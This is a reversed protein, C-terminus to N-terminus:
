CLWDELEPSKEPELSREAFKMMLLARKVDLWNLLTDQDKDKRNDATVRDLLERRPGWLLSQLGRKAEAIHIREDPDPRLLLRALRELGSSYISVSPISPLEEIRYHRNRLSPVAEFPNPLHLMEYILIGTQFEDVKRYQSASVIEPAMRTLEARQKEDTECRRKAKSFNSILLRPLPEQHTPNSTIPQRQPVLIMNELCLDRHTVGHAKLHELANCLFDAVSQSPVDRTIVVVREQQDLPVTGAPSSPPVLTEEQGPLMSLPVCAIFHGCDQQLNFHPPISQQVSLGFLHSRRVEQTHGKCIKVAYPTHMDSSCSAPYYAADRTVCVARSCSLKFLSWEHENFFRHTHKQTHTFREECKLALRRVCEGYLGGLRAYVCERSAGSSLLTQLSASSSFSLQPSSCSTVAQSKLKTEIDSSTTRSLLKKEPLPPPCLSPSPFLSPCSHQTSEQVVSDALAPLSDSSTTNMEKMSHPLSEVSGRQDLEMSSVSLKVCSSRKPRGRQRRGPLKMDLMRRGIYESERRLMKLEAVELESEPRQRLRVVTRYVKGKIRASIKRDCLVGLVKRWGNWGAQVRKKVEKGCEGNSQVTSGLYKFDQVKKVEEGQLRVTGSGERENVCMYETKSRSVKMGRRELAFRWRELNEEVQERSESCIVIDDAFMMTWPSEQRVEESLQDMVIAFLMPSLASGQHLGVEVNFEETQGVACRVVTRSREYMDQVVRVYKEAVGSKRMCYWLEERPVRDYAKELNELVMNFLSTLFEVAAEGLCKWVEVPIDDPGVAKGSKMRKLAKRVEDKRIKDVKQEVSNVGEVRKERENEENMLEEFYEKWRRQVSEESTLVRGDRDKIVRVQQVDKGDRDRQRALRYLDKEEERTDLRTYLEDYAKQKAKSVERKVRRQLEKYEQRNEETRDMDWKKKALRKRQISDQVEENWWWTEKDEKRRGSSVGLVKRGTERIVEATTEWDDPLASGGSKYTVRHEERKQFYTNVVAMDMRKAFDVVMQGELNREKVGFKAMVEEDGTNGEGVHGNFDAGIVVREGTPISEMVEDLESWFREKEELECGVELVNRVFEEKLVVGVVNRKSDVGYYFLKFGAGISCAKSGKWRTEQVCLIDVKRREMMDALERGKGKRKERQRHVRRGGRSRRGVTAWNGSAGQLDVAGITTTTLGPRSRDPIFNLTRHHRKPPPLPPRPESSSSDSKMEAQKESPSNNREVTGPTSDCKDKWERETKKKEEEERREEETRPESSWLSSLVPCSSHAEGQSLKLPPSVHFNLEPLPSLSSTGLKPSRSNRKPPIPPSAKTETQTSLDASVPTTGTVVPSSPWSFVPSSPDDPTTPSFRRWQTSVASDPSSLYFTRNTEETHAAMVTITARQGEGDDSVETILDANRRPRCKRKSSEAYIPESQITALGPLSDSSSCHSFLDSVSANNLSEPSAMPSSLVCHREASAGNVTGNINGTAINTIVQVEQKHHHLLSDCSAIYTCKPTRSVQPSFNEKLGIPSRCDEQMIFVCGPTPPAKPSAPTRSSYDLKTSIGNQLMVDKLTTNCGNSSIYLSSLDLINKLEISSKHAQQTNMTFEATKETTDLNMMTPKVAITPKIHTSASAGEDEEEDRCLSKRGKNNAHASRPHFCNKCSGPKWVHEAFESCASM